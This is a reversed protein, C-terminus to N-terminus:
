LEPFCPLPGGFLQILSSMKLKTQRNGNGSVVRQEVVVVVM